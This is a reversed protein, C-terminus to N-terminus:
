TVFSDIQRFFFNTLSFNENKWVTYHLFKLIQGDVTHYNRFNGGVAFNKRWISICHFLWNSPLKAFFRPPFIQLNGCQESHCQVTVVNYRKEIGRWESFFEHFCFIWANRLVTCFDMSKVFNKCHLFDYTFSHVCKLSTNLSRIFLFKAITCSTSVYCTFHLHTTVQFTHQFRWM